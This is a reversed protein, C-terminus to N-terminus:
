STSGPSLSAAWDAVEGGGAEVLATAVDDAEEDEKTTLDTGLGVGIFHVQADALGEMQSGYYAIYANKESSTVGGKVKLMSDAWEGDTFLYISCQGGVAKCQGAEVALLEGLPTGESSSAETLPTLKPHAEAVLRTLYSEELPGSYDKDKFALQVPWDVSGGPHDGCAAAYLRAHHDAADWTAVDMDHGYGSRVNQTSETSDVCVIVTYSSSGCAGLATMLFVGAIFAYAINRRRKKM